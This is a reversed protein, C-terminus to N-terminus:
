GLVWNLREIRPIVKVEVLGKVHIEWGIRGSGVSGYELHVLVLRSQYKM